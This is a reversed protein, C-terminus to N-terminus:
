ESQGREKSTQQESINTNEGSQQQSSEVPFSLIGKSSREGSINTTSPDESFQYTYSIMGKSSKFMSGATDKSSVKSHEPLLDRSSREEQFTSSKDKSSSQPLPAAWSPVIDGDEPDSKLLSEVEEDSDELLSTPSKQIRSSYDSLRDRFPSGQVWNNIKEFRSDSLFDKGLHVDLEDPVSDEKDDQDPAEDEDDTIIDENDSAGVFTKQFDLKARCDKNGVMENNEDSGQIDEDESESERVLVPENRNYPDITRRRGVSFFNVAKIASGLVHM